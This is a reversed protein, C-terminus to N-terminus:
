LCKLTKRQKGPIIADPSKRFNNKTQGSNVADPSEKFSNLKGPILLTPVKRLVLIHLREKHVKLESFSVRSKRKNTFM